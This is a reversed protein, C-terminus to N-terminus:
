IVACEALRRKPRIAEVVKVIECVLSFICESWVQYRVRKLGIVSDDDVSRLTM